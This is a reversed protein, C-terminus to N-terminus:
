LNTPDESYAVLRVALAGPNTLMNVFPLLIPLGAHTNVVAVTHVVLAGLTKYQAPLEPTICMQALPGGQKNVLLLRAAIRMPPSFSKLNLTFQNMEELLQLFLFTASQNYILSGLLFIDSIALNIRPPPPTAEYGPEKSLAQYMSVACAHMKVLM